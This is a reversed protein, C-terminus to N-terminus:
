KEYIEWEKLDFTKIIEKVEKIKEEKYRVYILSLRLCEKMLQTIDGFKLKHSLEVVKKWESRTFRIGCIRYKEDPDLDKIVMFRPM